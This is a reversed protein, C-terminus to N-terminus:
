SPNLPVFNADSKLDVKIVRKTRSHFDFALKTGNFGEYLFVHGGSWATLVGFDPVKGGNEGVGWNWWGWSIGQQGNTFAPGEPAKGNVYAVFAAAWAQSDPTALWDGCEGIFIPAISEKVIYGWLSNM